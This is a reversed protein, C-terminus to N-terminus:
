ASQALAQTLDAILDERAEIGISLRLLDDPCTTEPGEVPARHEVLSEVSGLSTAEKFIRLKGAVRRAAAAGGKVRFSLMGGFGNEMQRRAVAHAPDSPLGPYHVAEVGPHAALFEAIAQASASAIRVRPHLTRMGRLLLWAEFPGLIAGRMGRSERIQQWLPSNERTVLAGAVLDSHGNLYKTASHMVIDAGLNLPRTHVPTAVTSDVAVYAGHAHALASAAAIDTLEWTPNAPTEIWVLRPPQGALAQALSDLDDNQYEVLVLGLEAAFRRVWKRLGWYMIKPVVLKEGPRLTQFVACAAATGSSFLLADQGEELACLLAEPQDYAPSADRAYLRGGSLQGDHDRVYTSAMHIPPVIDRYPAAIRGLGQACLTEPLHSPDDPLRASM